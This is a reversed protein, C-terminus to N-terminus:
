SALYGDIERAADRGERIATAALAPGTSADGAAFVGPATTGHEVSLINGREDLEVGLEDLLESHAVHLFGLALLVLDTELTTSARDLEFPELPGGGEPERWEVGTVDAACVCGSRGHLRRTKVSWDRTCGEEHSSSTRKVRPHAPWSPNWAEGRSPPRPLIEIQHVSSAQMRNAVGVCDAGTDGGGIVLVKRDRASITQEETLEGAVLRNAGTLFDLALHVGELQRGPVDLERPEGAGLALLIADFSRRLTAADVDSGVSVGPELQVGEGELQLLRHDLVRKDLKFDPVGYRLLGGLRPAQEFVTVDHGARRLQQAAALGAPGSGVVAVRRGTLRAPPRRVVWGEAFAREAIALELQAITVPAFNLALTCASECPAPCLRGTIEPFNNSRELELYADYWEGEAVLRSWEPVLNSLPCGRAHCFPIGCDLCRSAQEQLVEEPQLVVFEEWGRLREEVPIYAPGRRRTLLFTPEAEPLIQAGV